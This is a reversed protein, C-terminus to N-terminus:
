ASVRSQQGLEAQRLQTACEEAISRAREFDEVVYFKDGAGPLNNLGSVIVPTSPGAESISKGQDNLLSRIRGFGPGSLIVDGVKLTGEQVLVTAVPGLGPDMNAEIVSGRAPATPDAKLELLEAQYDLIEILEKIGQGTVASTRIVETDGGWEVPNLGQGALQALVMDPNGDPPEM